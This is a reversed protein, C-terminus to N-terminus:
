QVTVNRQSNTLSFYLAPVQEFNQVRKNMGWQAYEFFLPLEACDEMAMCSAESLLAARASEDMTAFAQDLKADLELNVYNLAHSGGKSKVSHFLSNMGTLTSGGGMIFADKNGTKLDSLLTAWETPQSVCNIGIKKLETSVIIGFKMNPDYNATKLTFTLEKGDKEYIGNANLAYGKSELLAKAGEPDYPAIVKKWAEEDAGVFELPIPGYARVAIEVNADNKFTAAIASDVDIAMCIARRVDPDQFLENDFNFGMYRYWGSANAVVTLDEKALVSAIDNSTITTALDIENNQLSIALVSKDPIIKFVVEDLGPEIAFDANKELVVEDDTAYKVFKYPGSGVPFKTLDFGTEIAKPPFLYVNALTSLFYADPEKTVFKITTDDVVQISDLNSSVTVRQASENAEDMTMEFITKVDNATVQVKEDQFLDNGTHWYSNDKLHFVWTRDDENEWSQAFGPVFKGASDYEVLSEYINCLVYRDGDATAKLPNLTAISYQTGITLVKKEGGASQSGSTGSPTSSGSSGSPGAPEKPGCGALMLVALLVSLAKTLKKM